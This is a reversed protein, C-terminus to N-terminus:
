VIGLTVAVTSVVAIPVALVSRIGRRGAGGTAAGTRRSRGWRVAETGDSM